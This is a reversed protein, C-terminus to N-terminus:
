FGLWVMAGIEATIGLVVLIFVRKALEEASHAKAM